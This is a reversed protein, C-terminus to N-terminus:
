TSEAHQEIELAFKDQKAKAQWVNGCGLSNSIENLRKLHESTCRPGAIIRNVKLGVEDSKASQGKDEYGKSLKILSRFENEHQWSIHKIFYKMAYLERYKWLEDELIPLGKPKSNLLVFINHVIYGSEDTDKEYSVPYLRDPNIVEYEVCYGAFNNTYYGWMPFNDAGNATLSLIGTQTDNDNCTKIFLDIVGQGWGGNNFREVNFYLSKFEFLDNLLNKSSFWVNNEKLSVFRKESKELNDPFLPAYKYLYRPIGANKANRAKEFEGKDILERYEKLIDSSKNM